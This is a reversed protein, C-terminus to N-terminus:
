RDNMLRRTDWERRWLENSLRRLQRRFLVGRDGEDAYHHSLLRENASVGSPKGARNTSCSGCRCRRRGRLGPVPVGKPLEGRKQRAAWSQKNANSDRGAYGM